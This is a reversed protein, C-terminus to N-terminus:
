EPLAPSVPEWPENCEQVYPYYGEPDDCWYWYYEDGAYEDNYYYGIYTPYPYVPEPYFFWFGDAFWWWGFHGDHRTHRWEGRRWTRQEQPTFEAFAHGHFTASRTTVRTRTSEPGHDRGVTAHFSPPVSHFGREPMRGHFDPRPGHGHPREMGPMDRPHDASFAAPAAFLMCTALLVSHIQLKASTRMSTRM